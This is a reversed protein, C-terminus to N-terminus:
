ANQVAETPKKMFAIVYKDPHNVDVGSGIVIIDGMNKYHRKLIDAEYERLNTKEIIKGLELDKLKNDITQRIKRLQVM